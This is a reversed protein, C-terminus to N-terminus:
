RANAEDRNPSRNEEWDIQLRSLRAYAARQEPTLTQPLTDTATVCYRQEMFQVFDLVERAAQEPLSLSHQYITEALTM